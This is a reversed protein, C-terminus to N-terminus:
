PSISRDWPSCDNRYSNYTSLRTHDTITAGHRRNKENRRKAFATNNIARASDIRESARRREREQALRAFLFPSSFRQGERVSGDRRHCKEPFSATCPYRVASATCPCRTVGSITKEGCAPGLPAYLGSPVMPYMISPCCIICRGGPSGAKWM